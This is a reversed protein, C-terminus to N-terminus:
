LHSSYGCHRWDDRRRIGWQKKLCLMQQTNTFVIFLDVSAYFWTMSRCKMTPQYDM